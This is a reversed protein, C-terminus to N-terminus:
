YLGTAHAHQMNELTTAWELNGVINLTKQKGDVHNVEPKGEPNEIHAIAVLRHIRKKQQRGEGCLHVLAYGKRTHPIPKLIRGNETNM